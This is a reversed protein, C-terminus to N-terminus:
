ASWRRRWWRTSRCAGPCRCTSRGQLVTVAPDMATPTDRAGTCQHLRCGYQPGKWGNLGVGRIRTWGGTNSTNVNEQGGAEALGERSAALDARARQLETEM